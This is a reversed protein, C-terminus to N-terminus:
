HHLLRDLISATLTEDDGFTGSWQTFPLYGIEGVVLLHLKHIARTLNNKLEGSPAGICTAADHGCGHHVTREVLGYGDLVVGASGSSTDQRRGVAGM